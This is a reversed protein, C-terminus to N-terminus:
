CSLMLKVVGFSIGIGIGVGVVSRVVVLVLVVVFVVAVDLVVRSCCVLLVGGVAAVIALLKTLFVVM